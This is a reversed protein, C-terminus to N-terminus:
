NGGNDKNNTFGASLIADALMGESLNGMSTIIDILIERETPLQKFIRSQLQYDFIGGKRPGELWRGILRGEDVCFIKAEYWINSPQDFIVLLVAGYQLMEQKDM